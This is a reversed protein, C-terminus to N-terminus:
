VTFSITKRLTKANWLDQVVEEGVFEPIIQAPPVYRAEHEGTARQHGFFLTKVGKDRPTVLLNANNEYYRRSLFGKLHEM